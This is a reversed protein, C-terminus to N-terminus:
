AVWHLPRSPGPMELWSRQGVSRPPFTQCSIIRKLVLITRVLRLIIIAIISILLLLTTFAIPIGIM